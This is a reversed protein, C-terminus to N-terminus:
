PSLDQSFSLISKCLKMALEISEPVDSLYFFIFFSDFKFGKMTSRSAGKINIIKTPGRGPGVM